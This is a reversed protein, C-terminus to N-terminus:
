SRGREEYGYRGGSERDRERDREWDSERDRDRSNDRDDERVEERRESEEREHQEKLRIYEAIVEDATHDRLRQCAAVEQDRHCQHVAEKGKLESVAAYGKIQCTLTRCLCDMYANVHEFGRWITDLHDRAVLAAAYLAVFDVTRSDSAM